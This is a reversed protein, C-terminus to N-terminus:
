KNNLLTTHNYRELIEEGKKEEESGLDQYKRLSALAARSVMPTSSLATLAQDLFEAESRPSPALGRGFLHGLTLFGCVQHMDIGSAIWQFSKTSAYPLHAFLNHATHAAIEETPMNEVWIDAIEEWMTDVPQLMGALLKCERVNEKWLAQALDHSPEYQAAITRLRPLEVGFNLKYHAGNQRMLTSCVGNMSTRLDAKIQRITETINTQM